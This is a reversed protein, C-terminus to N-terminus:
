APRHFYENASGMVEFVFCGVKVTVPAEIQQFEDAM